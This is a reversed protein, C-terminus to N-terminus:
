LLLCNASTDVKQEVASTDVKQEVAPEKKRRAKLVESIIFSFVKLVNQGTKVSTEFVTIDSHNPFFENAKEKARGLSVQRKDELDAKCGVMVVVMDEAINCKSIWSAIGEFSKKDTISYCMIIADARRCYMSPIHVNMEGACTDVVEVKLFVNITRAAVEVALTTPYNFVGFCNDRFAMFLHSKGCANPGLLIVKLNQKATFVVSNGTDTSSFSSYIDASSFGIDASSFGIDADGISSGIAM